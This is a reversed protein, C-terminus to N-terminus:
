EEILTRGFDCFKRVSCYDYCRKPTAKRYEVFFRDHTGALASKFDEEGIGIAVKIDVEASAGRFLKDAKVKKKGKSLTYLAYVSEGEWKDSCPPIDDDVVGEFRMFDAVRSEIDSSDVPHLTVEVPTIRTKPYKDNKLVESKKWDTFVFLIMAKDGPVSDSTFAYFGEPSEECPTLKLHDLGEGKKAEWEKAPILIRSRTWLWRYASLQDIFDAYDNFIYKWVSTSKIDGLMQCSVLGDNYIMMDFTGVVTRDLEPIYYEMRCEQLMGSLKRKEFDEHIAKGYMIAFYDTIDSELDEYHRETLIKIKPDDLLTTVHLRKKDKENRREVGSRVWEELFAPLRHENLYKM